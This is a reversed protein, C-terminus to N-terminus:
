WIKKIKQSIEIKQEISLNPNKSINQNFIKLQRKLYNAIEQIKKDEKLTDFQKEWWLQCQLLEDKQETSLVWGVIQTILKNEFISNLDLILNMIEIINQVDLKNKKLFDDYFLSAVIYEEQFKFNTTDSPLKSKIEYKHLKKFTQFQQLLINYNVNFINAIREIYLMVVSSDQIWVILDFVENLMNKRDIPSKINYKQLLINCIFDFWDWSMTDIMKDLDQPNANIFEDIDKYNKDLQFVMPFIDNEYAIKLSRQTAQIWASDNDFAFIIKQSYRKALNLHNQTLATWCSAIWIPLNARFLAIVDMYWEVIILKDYNNINTKALNLGYLVKSKDYLMTEPTNLYKPMDSSSIARGAFAVINNMQDFIPFIIRNRFFSYIEWNSWKKWLGATIIDNSDFWKANLFKILEFHNDPAYWIWFKEIIDDSLKRDQSIYNYSIKHNKLNEKFYNLCYKNMLKIKERQNVNKELKEDDFKYKSLDINWQKALIKIAEWYDIKEIDMLFKIANWGVGCGFCKFIQKDPAVVFSPTKENHFPCLGGFNRWIKKLRVYKWVLDVIDINALVDENLASM